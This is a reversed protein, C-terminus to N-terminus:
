VEIFVEASSLKPRVGNKKIQGDNQKVWLNKISSFDNQKDIADCLELMAYDGEGRCIIDVGDHNITMDPYMTSHIGGVAQPTTVGNKKLFSSMSKLWNWQISMCSYAILDPKNEKISALSNEESAFLVETTHGHRKLLGSLQMLGYYEIWVDQLFLVKAM